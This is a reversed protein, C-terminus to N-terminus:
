HEGSFPDREAKVDNPQPQLNDRFVCGEQQLCEPNKSTLYPVEFAHVKLIGKQNLSVYYRCPYESKVEPEPLEGILEWKNSKPNHFQFYFTHKGSTPFPPLESILGMMQPQIAGDDYRFVRLNSSYNKDAEFVVTHADTKLANASEAVNVAIDCVVQADDSIVNPIGIVKAADLCPINVPILYHPNGRCLLLDIDLKQNIEFQVKISNKFDEESMELKKRLADGNYSGWLQPKINEFDQRIINNTLQMGQWSSRYKAMADDVKLQYLEQGSQFIPDLTGGIVERKFSCPLFYFLNKVDIYLQNAGRRLLEKSEKPAFGLQRLKEAFCAGASTALKTYEPEFTVRDENWVFYDSKSFVRYLEREVLELNCTKGSLILWDVQEKSTQSNLSHSLKNELANELLGQGIGVAERIVPSVSREFQQVTLTVSLNDVVETSLEIDNQQLLESIKQGDLIFIPEPADQQRKQGLAIKANEAQEWLTYFTQARSSSYKWRTPLVKEAANLADKYADGERIEKDVCGLLSGPLFKSNNLFRDSLEEPQVKLADKPLREETVATLLCDAIAAKLLLFLRLTILEGGLQLHGSSGLLKPTLKYYRGGDGRDEGPEFPNIEELTLRILALDTTGGGIDLVLVNQWWKDGNYRCRTKFSEIGVNLDGGFERWLFFIAVSIAEDYAMQVDEIDLQKVLKEIERRVFPSAITPYTVVARYFKGESCKGPYRQRYNQTLSILEAYAAQLLKNVEITDEQDDLTIKFSREQGFYRKPSHLFRGEIEEGNGITDLRHQRSQEGLVVKVKASDDKSLSPELNVVELESPIENLRRDKDLEVPILSQWELPPVRFVEHYIQNLRQSAARRFWGLRKSLCIEIQRIAELLKISEVGRFLQEGLNKNVSHPVSVFDKSLETLFKQWEQEWASRSIGPVDDVPRQNLWLAMRERLRVEQESPLSDPTVIVKPDYLTVTSNSTGFDIAFWGPYTIEPKKSEQPSQPKYFPEPLPLPLTDRVSMQIVTDEIGAYTWINCEATSNKSTSLNPNGIEDSDFYEVIVQLTCNVGAPLPENWRCETQKLRQPTSLRLFRSASFNVSKYASQLQAALKEPTGSVVIDIKSIHPLNFSETPKIEIVPLLLLEDDKTRLQYRNLLEIKVGM